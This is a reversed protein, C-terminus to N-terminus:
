NTVWDAVCITIMLIKGIPYFLKLMKGALDEVNLKKGAVVEDEVYSKMVGYKPYLVTGRFVHTKSYEGSRLIKSANTSLDRDWEQTIKSRPTEFKKLHQSHIKFGNVVNPRATKCLRLNVIRYGTYKVTM